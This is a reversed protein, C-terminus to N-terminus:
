FRRRAPPNMGRGPSGEALGLARLVAPTDSLDDLLLDPACGSLEGRPHSGTAVALTKAGVSKGCTVDAPTDGIVWVEDMGAPLVEMAAKAVENRDPSHDGYGGVSLDFFHELGFHSLKAAAGPAFNGTLLGLTVDERGSLAELLERVGPLVRGGGTALATPLAALYADRFTAHSDPTHEADHAAHYDLSIATDTRGSFSVDLDEQYFGFAEVAAARMAPGGSGAALLTGDIDFLLAIM